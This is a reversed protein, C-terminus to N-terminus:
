RRLDDILSLIKQFLNRPVALEALGVNGLHSGLDARIKATCAPDPFWSGCRSGAPDTKRHRVARPPWSQVTETEDPCVEGETM